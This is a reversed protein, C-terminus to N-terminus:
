NNVFSIEICNGYTVTLRNLQRSRVGHEGMMYQLYNYLESQKNPDIWIKKFVPNVTDYYSLISDLLELSININKITIITVMPFLQHVINSNIWEYKDKFVIEFVFSFVNMSYDMELEEREKKFYRDVMKRGYGSLTEFKPYKTSHPSLQDYIIARILEKDEDLIKEEQWKEIVCEECFFVEDIIQLIALLKNYQHDFQVDHINCIQLALGDSGAYQVFLHEAEAPYDSLWNTSFYKPGPISDCEFEFILGYSRSTAFNVAVAFSSSTSLPCNITVGMSQIVGYTPFVLKTDIGHYFDKIPGDHMSYGFQNVVQKLNMGLYYFHCHQHTNYRYTKSFEHQLSDFNCYIMLSLVHEHKPSGYLKFDGQFGHHKAYHGNFHIKAKKYEGNFQQINLTSLPNNILEEKLSKHKPKVDVLLEPQGGDWNEEHDYGYKFDEGFGYLNNVTASVNQLASINYRSQQIRRPKTKNALIQKIKLMQVDIFHNVSSNNQMKQEDNNIFLLEDKTLKNGIDFSHLYYCHIKDLIQMEATSYNNITIKVRDRFNRSYMACKTIDSSTCPGGLQNFIYEFTNEHCHLLHHFNGVVKTIDLEDTSFNNSQYMGITKRLAHLCLCNLINGDCVPETVSDNNNNQIFMAFDANDERGDHQISETHFQHNKNPYIYSNNSLDNIGHKKTQKYTHHLENRHRNEHQNNLKTYKSAACALSEDAKTKSCICITDGM